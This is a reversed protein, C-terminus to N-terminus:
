YGFDRLLDSIVRNCPIDLIRHGKNGNDVYAESGSYLLQMVTELHDAQIAARLARGRINQTTEPNRSLLLQLVKIHGGKAAGVWADHINVNVDKNLMREVIEVHGGESAGVFAASIFKKHLNANTTALFWDVVERDGFCSAIRLHSALDEPARKQRCLWRLLSLGCYPITDFQSCMPVHLPALEHAKRLADMLDRFIDNRNESVAVDIADQSPFVGRELLFKVLKGHGHFSANILAESWLNEPIGQDTSPRTEFLLKLNNINGYQAVRIVMTPFWHAYASGAAGPSITYLMGRAGQGPKNHRKLDKIAEDLLATTGHCAIDMNLESRWMRDRMSVHSWLHEVMEHHGGKLAATFAELTLNDSRETSPLNVRLLELIEINGIAAAGVLALKMHKWGLAISSFDSEMLIVEMTEHVLKYHGNAAAATLIVHHQAISTPEEWVHGHRYDHKSLLRALPLDGQGLALNLPSTRPSIWEHKLAEHASMRSTPNPVILRSLFGNVNNSAGPVIIRYGPRPGTNSFEWQDLRPWFPFTYKRVLEAIENQDRSDHPGAQNSFPNLSTLLYFVVCGVSWMDVPNGYEVSEQEPAAWIPTGIITHAFGESVKALGFDALKIAM